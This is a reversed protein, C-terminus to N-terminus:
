TITAVLMAQLMYRRNVVRAAELAESAQYSGDDSAESLARLELPLCGEHGPMCVFDPGPEGVAASSARVRSAVEAMAGVETVLQLDVGSLAVARLVAHGCPSRPDGGFGLAIENLPKGSLEQMTLLDALVTLPHSPSAWHNLVPVGAAAAMAAVEDAPMGQCEIAQYLRGLLRAREKVDKSNASGAPDRAQVRSVQAGLAAAAKHFETASASSHDDSLLALNCGKLVQPLAGARDAAKLHRASQILAVADAPRLADLSSFRQCQALRM